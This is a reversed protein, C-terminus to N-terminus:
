VKFTQSSIEVISNVELGICFRVRIERQNLILILFKNFRFSIKELDRFRAYGITEYCTKM